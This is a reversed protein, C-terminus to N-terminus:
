EMELSPIYFSERAVLVSGKKIADSYYKDFDQEEDCSEDSFTLTSNILAEKSERCFKNYEYKTFSCLTEKAKVFIDKNKFYIVFTVIFIAMVLLLVINEEAYQLIKDISNM